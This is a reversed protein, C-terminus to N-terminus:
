PDLRILRNRTILPLATAVTDVLLGVWSALIALWVLSFSGRTLLVILGVSGVGVLLWFLSWLRAQILPLHTAVAHDSGTSTSLHNIQDLLVAPLSNDM